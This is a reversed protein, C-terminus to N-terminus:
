GHQVEKILDEYLVKLFGSDEDLIVFQPYIEQVEQAIVGIPPTTGAIMKGAENWDWTYLNLDGLEGIKQINDKLNRDSFFSGVGGAIGGLMSGKGQDAQAQSQNMSSNYSNGLGGIGYGTQGAQQGLSGYSNGSNNLMTNGNNQVNQGFSSYQNLNSIGNQNVKLSNNFMANDQDFSLRNAATQAAMAANARSAAAAAAANARSALSSRISGANNVLNGFRSHENALQNNRVNDSQGLADQYAQVGMESGSRAKQQSLDGMAKAGVGANAIGRAALSANLDDGAAAYSRDMGGFYNGQTAAHFDKNMTGMADMYGQVNKEYPKTNLNYGTGKEAGAMYQHTDAPAAPAAATPTQERKNRGSSSGGM